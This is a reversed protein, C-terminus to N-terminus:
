KEEIEKLLEMRERRSLLAGGNKMVDEPLINLDKWDQMVRMMAPDGRLYAQVAADVLSQFTMEDDRLLKKLLVRDNHHLRYPMQHIGREKETIYRTGDKKRM